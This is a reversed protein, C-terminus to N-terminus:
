KVAAKSALNTPCVLLERLSAVKKQSIGCLTAAHIYQSTLTRHTIYSKQNWPLNITANRM